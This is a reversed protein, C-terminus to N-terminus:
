TEDDPIQEFRETHYGSYLKGTKQDAVIAHGPMNPIEGFFVLVQGAKFPSAGKLGYAAVHRVLSYQQPVITRRVATHKKKKMWERRRVGARVAQSGALTLLVTGHTTRDTRKGRNVLM